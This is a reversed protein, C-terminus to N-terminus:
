ESLKDEKDTHPTLLTEKRTNFLRIADKVMRGFGSNPAEKAQWLIMQGRAWANEHLRAAQIEAEHLATLQALAQDISTDLKGTEETESFASEYFGDLIGRAKRTFNTM